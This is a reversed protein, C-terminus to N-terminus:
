TKRHKKVQMHVPVDSPKAINRAEELLKILEAIWASDYQPGGNIQFLANFGERPTLTVKFPSNEDEVTTTIIM